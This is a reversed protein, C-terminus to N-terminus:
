LHGGKPPNQTESEFKSILGPSRLCLIITKPMETFVYSCSFVRSFNIQVYCVVKEWDNLFLRFISFIVLDVEPHPFFSSSSYVDGEAGPGLKKESKQFISSRAWFYTERNRERRNQTVPEKLTAIGVRSERSAGYLPGKQSSFCRGPTSPATFTVEM